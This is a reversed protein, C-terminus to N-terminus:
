VDEEITVSLPFGYAQATRIATNMKEEAIEHTYRGAVARGKMHVELTLHTAEEVSKNFLQILLMIVFDMTTVDDNHFIVLWMNPKKVEVEQQVESEVDAHTM